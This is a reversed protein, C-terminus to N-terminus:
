GGSMAATFHEPCYDRNRGVQKRHHHCLRRDCTRGEGAIPWDCLAEAGNPCGPVSCNERPGRSRGRSCVMMRAPKGDPGIMEHIECGM